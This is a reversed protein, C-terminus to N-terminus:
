LRILDIEISFITYPAEDFSSVEIRVNKLPVDCSSCRSDDTVESMANSGRIKIKCSPCYETNVEDYFAM